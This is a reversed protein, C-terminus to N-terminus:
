VSSVSSVSFVPVGAKAEDADPTGTKEREIIRIDLIIVTLILRSNLLFGAALGGRM